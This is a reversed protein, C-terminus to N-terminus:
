NFVVLGTAVALIWSAQHHWGGIERSAEGVKAVTSDLCEKLVVTHGEIAVRDDM